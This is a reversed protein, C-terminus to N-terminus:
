QGWPVLARSSVIYQQDPQEIEDGAEVGEAPEVALWVPEEGALGAGGPAVVTGPPRLGLIRARGGAGAELSAM